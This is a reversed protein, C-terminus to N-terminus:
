DDGFLFCWRGVMLKWICLTRGKVVMLWFSWICFQSNREPTYWSDEDGIKWGRCKQPFQQPKCVSRYRQDEVVAVLTRTTLIPGNWQHTWGFFVGTFWWDKPLLGNTWCLFNTSMWLTKLHIEKMGDRKKKDFFFSTKIWGEMRQVFLNIDDLFQDTLGEIKKFM